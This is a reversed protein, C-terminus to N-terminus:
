YDYDDDFEEPFMLNDYDEPEETMFLDAQSDKRSNERLQEDTKDTEESCSNNSQSVNALNHFFKIGVLIILVLLCILFFGLLIALPDFM